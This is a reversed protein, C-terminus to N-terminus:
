LVHHVTCHLPLLYFFFQQNMVLYVLALTLTLHQPLLTILHWYYKENNIILVGFASNEHAALM